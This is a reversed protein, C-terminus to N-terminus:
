HCLSSLDTFTYGNSNMVATGSPAFLATQLLEKLSEMHLSRTNRPKSNFINTICTMTAPISPSGSGECAPSHCPPLQRQRPTGSSLSQRTVATSLGTTATLLCDQPQLHSVNIRVVGSTSGPCPTTWRDRYPPVNQETSVKLPQRDDKTRKPM